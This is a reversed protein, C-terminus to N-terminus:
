WQIVEKGVPLDAFNEGHSNEITIRAILENINVQRIRKVPAIFIGNNMVSIEISQGVALGVAELISTKLRVAASNGATIVKSNLTMSNMVVELHACHAYM